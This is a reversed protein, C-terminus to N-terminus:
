RKRQKYIEFPIMILRYLFYLIYGAITIPFIYWKFHYFYYHIRSAAIVRRAEGCGECLTYEKSVIYRIRTSKTNNLANWCPLCFEAM